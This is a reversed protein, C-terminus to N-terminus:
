FLFLQRTLLEKSFNFNGAVKETRFLNSFLAPSKLKDLFNSVLCHVHATNKNQNAELKKLIKVLTTPSM